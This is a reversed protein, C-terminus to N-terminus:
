GDYEYHKLSCDIQKDRHIYAHFHDHSGREHCISVNDGHEGCKSVIWLKFHEFDPENINWTLLIGRTKIAFTM